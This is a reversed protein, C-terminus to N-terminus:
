IQPSHRKSKSFKNIFFVVLYLPEVILVMSKLTIGLPLKEKIYSELFENDELKTKKNGKEIDFLQIMVKRWVFLKKLIMGCFVIFTLQIKLLIECIIQM